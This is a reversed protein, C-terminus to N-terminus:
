SLWHCQLLDRDGGDFSRATWCTSCERTHTSARVRRGTPCPADTATASPGATVCPATANDSSHYLCWVGECIPAAFRYHSRVAGTTRLPSRARAASVAPWCASISRGSRMRGSQHGRSLRPAPVAPRSACALTWFWRHMRPKSRRHHNLHCDELRPQQPRLWLLRVLATSGNCRVRRERKM